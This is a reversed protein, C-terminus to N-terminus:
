TYGTCGEFGIINSVVKLQQIECLFLLNLEVQGPLLATVRRGPAQAGPLLAVSRAPAAPLRVKESLLSSAVFHLSYLNQLIINLSLSVAFVACSFSSLGGLALKYTQPRAVKFYNCKGKLAPVMTVHGSSCSPAQRLLM